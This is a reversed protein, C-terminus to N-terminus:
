NRKQIVAIEADSIATNLIEKTITQFGENLEEATFTYGQETALQVLSANDQQELALMVSERLTKNPLVQAFFELFNLMQSQTFESM